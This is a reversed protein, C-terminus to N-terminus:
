FLGVQDEKANIAKLHKYFPNSSRFNVEVSKPSIPNQSKASFADIVKFFIREYNCLADILPSICLLVFVFFWLRLPVFTIDENNFFVRPTFFYNMFLSLVGGSLFIFISLFVVMMVSQYAIVQKEFLSSRWSWLHLYRTLLVNIILLFYALPSITFSYISLFFLSNVLCIFPTLFYYKVKVLPRKTIKSRIVFLWAMLFLTGYKFTITSVILMLASNNESESISKFIEMKQNLTIDRSIDKLAFYKGFLGATSRILIDFTMKWFLLSNFMASHSNLQKLSLTIDLVILPLETVLLKLVSLGISNKIFISDATSIGKLPDVIEQIKILYSRKEIMFMIVAFGIGVLLMVGTQILNRQDSITPNNWACDSLEKAMKVHIRHVFGERRELASKLLKEQEERYAGVQKDLTVTNLFSKQLTEQGFFLVVSRAVEMKSFTIYMSSLFKNEFIDRSILSREDSIPEGNFINVIMKKGRMYSDCIYKSVVDPEKLLTFTHLSLLRKEQSSINIASEDTSQQFNSDEEQEASSEFSDNVSNLEVVNFNQGKLETCDFMQSIQQVSDPVDTILECFEQIKLSELTNAINTIKVTYLHLLGEPKQKATSVEIIEREAKFLSLVLLVLILVACSLQAYEQWRIDVTHDIDFYEPTLVYVKVLEATNTLRFHRLNAHFDKNVGLAAFISAKAICALCYIFSSWAISGITRDFLNLKESDVSIEPKTPEDM